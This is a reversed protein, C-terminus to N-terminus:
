FIFDAAVLTNEDAINLLHVADGGGLDITTTTGVTTAQDYVDQIHQFDFVTNSLDIRDAGAVKFDNIVAGDSGARFVFLDDGAGGALEDDDAGGEITDNGNGGIILDDGGQGDLTDNGDGGSIIDDGGFPSNPGDGFITDDDADGYLIDHGGVAESTGDVFRWDGYITDNGDHGHVVDDCGLGASDNSASSEIRDFDGILVDNGSYGSIRDAEGQAISGVLRAIDGIITDAGSGGSVVDDGGVVPDSPTGSDLCLRVDGILTGGRGATEHVIDNGGTLQAESMTDVDGILTGAGHVSDRGAVLTRAELRLEDGFVVSGATRLEDNGSLIETWFSGPSRVLDVLSWAPDGRDLVITVDRFADRALDISI